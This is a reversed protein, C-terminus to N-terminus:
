KRVSKSKLFILFNFWCFKLWGLFISLEGHPVCSSFTCISGKVRLERVPLLEALDVHHGIVKRATLLLLPLLCPMATVVRPLCFMSETEPDRFMTTAVFLYSPIAIRCNRWRRCLRGRNSESSCIKTGIKNEFPAHTNFIQDQKFKVYLINSQFYHNYLISM